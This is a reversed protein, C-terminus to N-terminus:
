SLSLITRIREHPSKIKGFPVKELENWSCDVSAVGYKEVIARDCPAVLREGVPTLVVGRFKSPVRLEKVLGLRVLRKGSCRKPDCHAFDWLALPVLPASFNETRM